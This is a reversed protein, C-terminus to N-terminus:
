KGVLLTYKICNQQFEVDVMIIITIIDLVIFFRDTKARLRQHESADSPSVLPTPHPSQNISYTGCFTAM